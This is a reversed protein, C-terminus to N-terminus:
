VSEQLPPLFTTPPHLKKLLHLSDRAINQKPNNGGDLPDRLCKRTPPTSLQLPPGIKNSEPRRIKEFSDTPGVVQVHGVTGGGGGRCGAGELYCSPAPPHPYGGGGYCRSPGAYSRTNKGGSFFYVWALFHCTYKGGSGPFYPSHM